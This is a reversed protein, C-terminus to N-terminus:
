QLVAKPCYGCNPCTGEPPYRGTLVDDVGVKAFRAMRFVLSTTMPKAGSAMKSLAIDGYGLAKGLPEWAGCQQYLFKLATRSNREEEATFDASKRM